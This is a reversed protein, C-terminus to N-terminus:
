PLLYNEQRFYTHLIDLTFARNSFYLKTALLIEKTEKSVEYNTKKM